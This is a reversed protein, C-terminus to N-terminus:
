ANGNSECIKNILNFASAYKEKFYEGRNIKMSLLQWMEVATDFGNLVGFKDIYLKIIYFLIQEAKLNEAKIREEFVELAKAGFGKLGPIADTADGTLMQKLLSIIGEEESVFFVNNQNMNWHWGPVQKLDKDHSFIFTEDNQLMSLIDDAELDDFFLTQYRSNIYEYVYAMDEFKNSYHYKDEGKRHGKYQKEQAIANRFVKSSPASFCFIYAKAEFCNFIDMSLYGDIIENLLSTTHREGEEMLKQYMRYTVLHKYRDADILAVKDISKKSIDVSDYVPAYLPVINM